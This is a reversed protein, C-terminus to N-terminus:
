ENICMVGSWDSVQRWDECDMVRYDKGCFYVKDGIDAYGNICADTVIHIYEKESNLGLSQYVKKPVPQVSGYGVKQSSYRPTDVGNAGEVMGSYKSYTFKRQPIIQKAYSHLNM